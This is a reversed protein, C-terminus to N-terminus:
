HAQYTRSFGNRSNTITFSGDPKVTAKLWHAKCQDTPEPNATMDASTNHADDIALSRHLQWSAELGPSKRITEAAGLGLGKNPGNNVVIVQPKMSWVHAPAGSADGYFGHHTAQLLTIDGLKNVPCALEMEKDWTLDGLDVFNFKGYQLLIGASRQNETIDAPKRGAGACFPNPKANEVYKQIVAGNSTVVLVKVGSLPIFDGPKVITRRGTSTAKYQEWRRADGPDTTEISDGHDYFRGVPILKALAPAGGVHDSHFHTILVADIKKLGAERAVAAIRKPDRDDMGPNGTDILLSRGQPTVILTAGGGETDIWYIDLSQAVVGAALLALVCIFKM